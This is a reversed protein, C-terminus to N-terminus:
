YEIREEDASKRKIEDGQVVGIESFDMADFSWHVMVNVSEGERHEMLRILMRKELKMDDDQFMGLLVDANQPIEYAFGVDGAEAELKGKRVKRTFQSTAIVPIQKKLALHQLQDSVTSVREWKNAIRSGPLQMLYMGDVLVITPKYEEVLLEIDQVTRVRGNGVVWLPKQNKDRFTKLSETYQMELETTLKGSKFDQFPLRAYSADIRRQIKDVPMEMTILMVREGMAWFHQAFVVVSWSKGSKLRGVVFWLEGNHVGMTAHNIAPWPLPKGDIKDLKKIREYEKWRIETTERMDVLGQRGGEDLKSTKSIADKLDSLAGDSDKVRLKDVAKDLGKSLINEVWRSKLLDAYYSLPEPVDDPLTIKVGQEVTEKEPMKGYQAFFEEIFQYAEKGKDFLMDSSINADKVASISKEDLIKRVLM